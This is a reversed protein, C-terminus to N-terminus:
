HHCSLFYVALSVMLNDELEMKLENYAKSKEWFHNIQKGKPKKHGDRVRPCFTPKGWVNDTIAVSELIIEPILKTNLKITIRQKCLATIDKPSAKCETQWWNAMM